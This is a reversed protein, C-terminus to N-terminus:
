AKPVADRWEEVCTVLDEYGQDLARRDSGLYGSFMLSLADLAAKLTIADATAAVDSKVASALPTGEPCDQCPGAKGGTMTGTAPDRILLKPPTNVRKIAM